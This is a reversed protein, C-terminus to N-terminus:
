AQPLPGTNEAACVSSTTQSDRGARCCLPPSSQPRTTLKMTRPVAHFLHHNQPANRRILGPMLQRSLQPRILGDTGQPERTEGACLCRVAARVKVRDPASAQFRHQYYESRAPQASNTRSRRERHPSLSDSDRDTQRKEERDVVSRVGRRIAGAGDRHRLSTDIACGVLARWQDYSQPSLNDERARAEPYVHGIM